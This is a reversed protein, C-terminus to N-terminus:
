SQTMTETGIRVLVRKWKTTSAQSACTIPMHHVPGLM